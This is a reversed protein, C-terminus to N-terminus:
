TSVTMLVRAGLVYSFGCCGLQGLHWFVSLGFLFLDVLVVVFFGLAGIVWGNPKYCRPSGLHGGVDFFYFGSDGVSFRWPPQKLCSQM